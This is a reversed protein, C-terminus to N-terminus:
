KKVYEVGDITVVTKKHKEQTTTTVTSNPCRVVMICSVTTKCVQTFSCDKLEDPLVSYKVQTASPEGCGVLSILALLAVAILKKM